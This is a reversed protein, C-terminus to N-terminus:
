QDSIVHCSLVGDHYWNLRPIQFIVIASTESTSVVVRVGVSKDVVSEIVRSELLLLVLLLLSRKSM